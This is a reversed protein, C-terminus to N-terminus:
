KKRGVTCIFYVFKYIWYCLAAIPCAFTHLLALMTAGFWNVSHCYRYVWYPNVFEWGVCRRKWGIPEMLDALLCFGGILQWFFIFLFLEVNNM